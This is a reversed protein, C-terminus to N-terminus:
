PIPIHEYISQSAATLTRYEFGQIAEAGIKRFSLLVHRYFNQM